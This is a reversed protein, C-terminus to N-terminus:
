KQIRGKLYFDPGVHQVQVDVLSLADAMREVGHGGIPSAAERGGCLKPATFAHVEDIMGADFLRGLVESGGEVLVNTM